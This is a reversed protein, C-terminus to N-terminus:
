DKWLFLKENCQNEKRAKSKRKMSARGKHNNEKKLKSQNVNAWSKRTKECLLETSEFYFLVSIIM